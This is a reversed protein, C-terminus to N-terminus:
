SDLNLGRVRLNRLQGLQNQLHIGSWCALWNLEQTPQIYANYSLLYRKLYLEALLLKNIVQLSFKDTGTKYLYLGM